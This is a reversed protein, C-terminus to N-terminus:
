VNENNATGINGIRLIKDHTECYKPSEKAKFEWEQLWLIQHSIQIPQPNKQNM